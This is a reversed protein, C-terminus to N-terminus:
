LDDEKEMAELPDKEDLGLSYKESVFQRMVAIPLSGQDIITEHFEAIDFSAGQKERVAEKLAIIEM